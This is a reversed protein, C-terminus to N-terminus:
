WSACEWRDRLSAKCQNGLRPCQRLFAPKTSHALKRAGPLCKTQMTEDDSDTKWKALGFDGLQM